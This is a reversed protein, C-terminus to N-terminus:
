KKRESLYFHWLLLTALTRYPKWGEAVQLIEEKAPKESLKKISAIAKLVALDGIPFVDVRHLIFILYVDVTWNGIGKIATLQQRVAEDPLHSLETLSLQGDNIHAALHKIYRAKQRSVYCARLEDYSLALVTEPNIAGVRERLKNLAALASALSVQQELIIHVLSEFTNPRSWLPPYGHASIIGQLDADAAALKDFLPQYNAPNHSLPM